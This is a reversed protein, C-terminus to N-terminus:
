WLVLVTVSWLSFIITTLPTLTTLTHGVMCVCSDGRLEQWGRMPSATGWRVIMNESHPHLHHACLHWLDEHIYYWAYVIDRSLQSLQPPSCYCHLFLVSHLWAIETTWDPRLLGPIERATNEAILCTPIYPDLNPHNQHLESFVPGNWCTTRTQSSSVFSPLWLFLPPSDFFSTQQAGLGASNCCGPDCPGTLQSIQSVYFCISIEALQYHFM